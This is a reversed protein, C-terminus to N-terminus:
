GGGNPTVLQRAEAINAEVISIDPSGEPLAARLSQWRKLADSYKKQELDLSAQLWLAKLHKGDLQLARAIAEAPAGALRRNGASALADAYDAWADANRADLRLAKDYATVAAAYDRAQRQANALALWAQVNAPNDDTMAKLEEISHGKRATASGNVAVAHPSASDLNMYSLLAWEGDSDTNRPTPTAALSSPNDEATESGAGVTITILGLLPLAFAGAALFRHFRGFRTARVGSGLLFFILGATALAGSAFGLLAIYVM